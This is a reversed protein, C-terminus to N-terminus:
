KKYGKVFEVEQEVTELFETVESELKKIEDEDREVRICFYQANEPMRPDFSVFDCWKRGTIWMQGMVQWYYQYPVQQAQLTAIHTASNPCKIELLGDEGILGDPSAGAMIKEHAFFGCEEVDNGSNLVYQLRALPETETGWQMAPSKWTEERNGTLCEATLESRYNKVAAAEGYKVKTMIDKFRSATARGLRAKFWDDTGQEVYIPNAIQQM